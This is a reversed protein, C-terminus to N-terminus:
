ISFVNNANKFVKINFLLKMLWQPSKALNKLGFLFVFSKKMFIKINNKFGWVQSLYIIVIWSRRRRHFNPRFLDNLINVNRDKKPSVSNM